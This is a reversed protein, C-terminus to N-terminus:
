TSVTTFCEFTLVTLFFLIIAQPLYRFGKAGVLFEFFRMFLDFILGGLIIYPSIELVIAEKKWNQSLYYYLGMFIVNYVITNKMAQNMSIIAPPDQMLAPSAKNGFFRMFIVVIALLFMFGGTLAFYSLLGPVKFDKPFM